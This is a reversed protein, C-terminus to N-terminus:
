LEISKKIKIMFTNMKKLENLEILIDNIDEKICNIAEQTLLHQEVIYKDKLYEESTFSLYRNYISSSSHSEIFNLAEPVKIFNIYKKDLNNIGFDNLDEKNFIDYIKKNIFPIATFSELNEFRNKYSGILNSLNVNEKEISNDVEEFLKILTKRINEEKNCKKSVENIRSIILTLFAAIFPTIIPLYGKM